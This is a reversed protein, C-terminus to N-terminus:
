LELGLQERPSHAYKFGSLTSQSRVNCSLGLVQFSRGMMEPHLLTQLQRRSGPDELGALSKQHESIIGTLFHHQDAFGALGFGRQLARRAVDTWAVHATIDSQGICDFASDLPRHEARCQLTGSQRPIAALQDTSLGYDIILIYGRNLKKSLADIWDLAALSIETEVGSPFPPLKRAREQLRVEPIPRTVFVFRDDRWDVFKELWESHSQNTGGSRAPETSRVLHVPMADLLENSFHVGVFPGVSDLSTHWRVRDSFKSLRGAQRERWIPYPEVINYQVSNFCNPSGTSLATLVDRAFHGEHAGQEIIVFEGPQDLQEWIENFQTALLNGFVPGVSVNTFYDGRRGLRALGSSYYGHEPHYLAQEMFWAFSVPGAAGIRDRILKILHPNGAKVILPTISL